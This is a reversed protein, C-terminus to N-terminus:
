VVMIENGSYSYVPLSCFNTIQDIKSLPVLLITPNRDTHVQFEAIKDCIESEISFEFRVEVPGCKISGGSKIQNLDEQDLEIFSESDVPNIDYRM